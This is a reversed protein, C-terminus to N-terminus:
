RRNKYYRKQAKHIRKWRQKQEARALADQKLALYGLEKRLKLYNEFRDPDLRGDEIAARVACRPESIHKCDRFFCDAAITDIDDFAQQLGSEADWLQLERMGPTDILLGGAPLIFLKRYSTAHRGRDDEERIERVEQIDAGLLRNIITSKGVGSSGIFAATEGARLYMPIDDFGVSTVASIVLIPVGAAVTAVQEVAAVADECLDAKSLLIAPQAGSEWITAIYREIRRLNLDANLSSVLFVTDINAAVIQESTKEGAVKRSFKSKRPLVRHITARGEAPRADIAVWDGVAPFDGRTAASHRLHGSIEALLVGDECAVRYFDKQEEVVRAPTRSQNEETAWYDQFFSSWGLEQLHFM